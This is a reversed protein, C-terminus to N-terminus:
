LQLSAGIDAWSILKFNQAEAPMRNRGDQVVLLGAPYDPGLAKSTVALGDTESSGDVGLDLNEVVRFRGVFESGDRSFLAYSNDGQSSVVLFSDDGQLYLDLGEVDAVLREGDAPAILEPRGEGALFAAIDLRWVGKDEEGFFLMRREDDAVCGEVQSEVPLDARRRLQWQGRAEALQIEVLHLGGEKDSLWAFLDAGQQYLCLGYPDKLDMTQLGLSEVEGKVSIGFLSVGPTTRNSAAAIAQYHPHNVPRLDVNNVRGVAFSQLLEGDLNYINLGSKKDTGLILSKAADTPNIWIAPDDAADGGSGVPTTEARASISYTTVAEEKKAVTAMPLAGADAVFIQEAEEELFALKGSAIVVSVPELDDLAASFVQKGSEELSHASLTDGAALWALDRKADLWLGAFEGQLKEGALFVRRSEDREASANMQWIGLPPQAVLLQERREDIACSSVQEGFHLSRVEAIGWRGEAAYIRYEHGLGNEDIAFLQTASGQAASCLAAIPVPSSQSALLKFKPQGGSELALSFVQLAAQSEDASIILWGGDPQRHLAFREASGHGLSALEASETSVLVLGKTESALLLYEEDGFGVPALQSSAVGSLNLSGQPKLAINTGQASGISDICAALLGSLLAVSLFKILSQKAM